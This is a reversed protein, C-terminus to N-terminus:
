IGAEAAQKRLYDFAKAYAAQDGGGGSEISIRGQWRHKALVGFWGRFDDGAVGPLARKAKEAIHFHHLVDINADLDAPVDDGLVMHYLDATIGISAHGAARVVEAVERINNLFNCEGKNLPEVSVRIGQAAALPGMGKLLEIFQRKAEDKSFGDPIKRSGGSGFTIVDVGVMRARRFATNAYALIEAHKAEPGVSKLGGPLFSNCNKVPLLAASIEPLRKAFEEDGKDPMLLGGVAEEIYDCGADKLMRANGMRGCVGFAVQAKAAPAAEEASWLRGALPGAMLAAAGVGMLRLLHRRDIDPITPRDTKTM